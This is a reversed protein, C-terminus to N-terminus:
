KLHEAIDVYIDKIFQRIRNREEETYGWAPETSKEMEFDPYYKKCLNDIFLTSPIKYFEKKNDSLINKFRTVIINPEKHKKIIRNFFWSIFDTNNMAYIFNYLNDEKVLQNIM